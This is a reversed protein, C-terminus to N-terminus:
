LPYLYDNDFDTTYLRLYPLHLIAYGNKATEVIEAISNNFVVSSLYTKSLDHINVYGSHAILYADVFWCSMLHPVHLTVLNGVKYVSM